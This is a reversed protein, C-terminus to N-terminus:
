QNADRFESNVPCVVLYGIPERFPRSQDKLIIGPINVSRELRSVFIM